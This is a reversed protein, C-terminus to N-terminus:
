VVVLLKKASNKHMESPPRTERDHWNVIQCPYDRVLDFMVNTGHIHLVNLWLDQVDSLIDM